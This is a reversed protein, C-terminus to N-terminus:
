ITPVRNVIIMATPETVQGSMSHPQIQVTFVIADFNLQAQFAEREVCIRCATAMFISYLLTGKGGKSHRTRQWCKLPHMNWINRLCKSDLCRADLGTVFRTTYHPSILCADSFVRGAVISNLRM